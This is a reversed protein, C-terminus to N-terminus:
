PTKSLAAVVRFVEVFGAVAGVILGAISIWRHGLWRDLGMGIAWGILTSAPLVLALQILREAEVVSKLIGRAGGRRSDSDEDQKDPANM